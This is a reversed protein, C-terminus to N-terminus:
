TAKAPAAKVLLGTVWLLSFAELYSIEKLGFIGIVSANWAWKLPFAMLLSSLMLAAVLLAVGAVAKAFLEYMKEM